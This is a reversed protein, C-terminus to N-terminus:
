ISIGFTKCISRAFDRASLKSESLSLPVVVIASRKV